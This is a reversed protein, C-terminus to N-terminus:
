HEVNQSLNISTVPKPHQAIIYFTRFGFNHILKLLQKVKCWM